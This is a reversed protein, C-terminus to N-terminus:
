LFFSFSYMLTSASPFPNWLIMFSPRSRVMDRALVSSVNWPLINLITLFKARLFGTSVFNMSHNPDSLESDLFFFKKKEWSCTGVQSIYLCLPGEFATVPQINARTVSSLFGTQWVSPLPIETNRKSANKSM